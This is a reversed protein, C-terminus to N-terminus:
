LAGLTKQIGTMTAVIFSTLHTFRTGYHCCLRCNMKGIDTTHLKTDRKDIKIEIIAGVEMAQMHVDGHEECEMCKAVLLTEEELSSAVDVDYFFGPESRYEVRIICKQLDTISVM